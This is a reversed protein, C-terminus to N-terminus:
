KRNPRKPPIKGAILAITTVVHAVSFPDKYYLTPKPSTSYVKRQMKGCDIVPSLWVPNANPYNVDLRQGNPQLPVQDFSYAECFRLHQSFFTHSGGKFQFGLDADLGSLVDGIPLLWDVVFSLTTKEWVWLAPNTLGLSTALHLNAGKLVYWLSVKQTSTITGQWKHRFGRDAGTPHTWNLVVEPNVLQARAVLLFDTDRFQKEILECLNYADMIIPQIGYIAELWLSGVDKSYQRTVTNRNKTRFGFERHLVTLDKKRIADFIVQLKRLLGLLTGFSERAELVSMALDLTKDKAQNLASAILANETNSSPGPWYTAQPNPGEIWIPARLVHSIYGIRKSQYPLSVGHVYVPDPREIVISNWWSTSYPSPKRWGDDDMKNYVLDTKTTRSTVVDRGHDKALNANATQHVGILRLAEARNAALGGMWDVYGATTKYGYIWNQRTEITAM